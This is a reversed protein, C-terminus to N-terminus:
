VVMWLKRNVKIGLAECVAIAWHRFGFAVATIINDTKIYHELAKGQLADEWDIINVMDKETFGEELLGEKCAGIMFPKGKLHGTKLLLASASSIAAVIKNADAFDSVFRLIDQEAVIARADLVGTLILSDYEDMNCQDLTYDAKVILGEESKMPELTKGFYDIEKQEMTLMNLLLTM